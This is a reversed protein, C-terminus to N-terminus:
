FPDYDYLESIDVDGHRTAMGGSHRLGGSGTNHLATPIPIIDRGNEHHHWTQEIWDADNAPNGGDKLIEIKTDSKKRVKGDPFNVLKGTNPDKKLAWNTANKLDTNRAKSIDAPKNSNPITWEDNFKKKVLVGNERLPTMHKGFEPFGYKNYRVNYTVPNGNIIVTKTINSPLPRPLSGPLLINKYFTNVRAIYNDGKGAIQGLLDTNLRVWKPRDILGKWAKVKLPNRPKALMFNHLKINDFMDNSLKKAQEVSLNDNIAKNFDDEWDTPRTENTGSNKGETVDKLNNSAPVANDVRELVKTLLKYASAFVFLAGVATKGIEFHQEEVGSGGTLLEKKNHLFAGATKLPSKMAELIKEKEIKGSCVGKVLNIMQVASAIPNEEIMGTIPGCIMGTFDWMVKSEDSPSLDKWVVDELTGTKAIGKGIACAQTIISWFDVKKTYTARKGFFLPDGGVGDSDQTLQASSQIESTNDRQSIFEAMQVLRDSSIHEGSVFTKICLRISGDKEKHTWIIFDEGTNQAFHFQGVARSSEKDTELPPGNTIKQGEASIIFKFTAQNSNQSRAYVEVDNTVTQLYEIFSQDISALSVIQSSSNGNQDLSIVQPEIPSQSVTIDNTIIQSDDIKVGEIKISQPNEFLFSYAAENSIGKGKYCLCDEQDGCWLNYWLGVDANNYEQEGLSEECLSRNISIYIAVSSPVNTTLSEFYNQANELINNRWNATIPCDAGSQSVAIDIMAGADNSSFDYMCIKPSLSTATRLRYQGTSPNSCDLTPYNASSKYIEPLFVCTFDSEKFYSEKRCPFNPDDLCVALEKSDCTGDGDTDSSLVLGEPVNITAIKSCGNADEVTLEYLGNTFIETTPTDEGNSWTYSTINHDPPLIEPYLVNGNECVQYVGIDFGNEQGVCLCDTNIMDNITCDNNDDCATGPHISNVVINQIRITGDINSYEVTLTHQNETIPIPIGLDIQINGDLVANSCENHNCIIDDLLLDQSSCWDIEIYDPDDIIVQCSATNGEYNSVEIDYTGCTLNEITVLENPLSSQLYHTEDSPDTYGILFTSNGPLYIDINNVSSIQCNIVLNNFWLDQIFDLNEPNNAVGPTPTLQNYVGISNDSQSYNSVQSQPVKQNFLVDSKSQIMDGTGTFSIYDRFFTNDDEILTAGSYSSSQPTPAGEWKQLCDSNLNLLMVNSPVTSVNTNHGHIVILDGAQIDVLCEPKIALFGPEVGQVNSDDIIVKPYSDSKDYAIANTKLVVLEIFVDGNIYDNNNIENIYLIPLRDPLKQADIKFIVCLMICVLALIPQKRSLM